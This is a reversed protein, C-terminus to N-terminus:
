NSLRVRVRYFGSLFTLIIDIFFTINVIWEMIVTEEQVSPFVLAYPVMLMSYITGSNILFEWTNSCTSRPDIIYSPLEEQMRSKEIRARIAEEDEEQANGGSQDFM